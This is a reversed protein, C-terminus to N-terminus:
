WVDHARLHERTNHSESVYAEYAKVNM